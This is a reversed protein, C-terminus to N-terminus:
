AKRNSPGNIILLDAQEANSQKKTLAHVWTWRPMPYLERILPHDYFRCVVRCAQFRSLEAALRRHDSETFKHRYADGPGPFPPDVYVVHGTQDVVPTDRITGFVDSCKDAHRFAPLGARNAYDIAAKYTAAVIMTKLLM